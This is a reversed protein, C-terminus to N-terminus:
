KYLGGAETVAGAMIEFYDDLLEIVAEMPLSDSLATFDRLDTLRPNGFRM